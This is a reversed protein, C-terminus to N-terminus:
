KIKATHGILKILLCAEPELPMHICRKQIDQLSPKLLSPIAFHDKSDESTNAKEGGKAVKQARFRPKNKTRNTGKKWKGM